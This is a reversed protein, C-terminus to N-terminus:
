TLPHRASISPLERRSQWTYIQCKKQKREYRLKGANRQDLITDIFM